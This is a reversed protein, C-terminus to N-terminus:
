GWRRLLASIGTLSWRLILVQRGKGIRYRGKALGTLVRAANFERIAAVEVQLVFSLESVPREAKDLAPSWCCALFPIPRTM